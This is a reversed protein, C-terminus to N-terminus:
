SLTFSPSFIKAEVLASTPMATHPYLLEAGPRGGIGDALDERPHHPPMGGGNGDQATLDWIPPLAAPGAVSVLVRSRILSGVCRKVAPDFLFPEAVDVKIKGGWCRLNPPVAM